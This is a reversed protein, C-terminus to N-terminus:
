KMVRRVLSGVSQELATFAGKLRKRRLGRRLYPIWAPNTAEIWKEFEKQTVEGLQILRYVSEALERILWEGQPELYKVIGKAQTLWTRVEEERSMALDLKVATIKRATPSPKHITQHYHFTEAVRGEVGGARRVIDALVFDEQRYVFDDDIVDIGPRFAKTRGMQSGAWPREGFDINYEVMVTHQMASGFWDYQTQHKAMADFWDEPLYVDSHLYIFWDTEVAEILKRLSYGLSKFERHDLVSVRPFPALESLSEDTSGGDGILLRNVPIERYFSYLNATWLENTHIVPVIVDVARERDTLFRDIFTNPQYYRAFQSPARSM